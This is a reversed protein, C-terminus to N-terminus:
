KAGPDAASLDLPDIASMMMARALYAFRDSNTVRNGGPLLNVKQSLEKRRKLSDEGQEEVVITVLIPKM